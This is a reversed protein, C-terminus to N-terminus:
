STDEMPMVTQVLQGVSPSIPWGRASTCLLCKQNKFWIGNLVSRLQVGQWCGRLHEFDGSSTGALAEVLTHCPGFSSEVQLLPFLLCLGGFTCAQRPSLPSGAEPISDPCLGPGPAPSIETRLSGRSNVDFSSFTKFEAQSRGTILAATQLAPSALLLERAAGPGWRCQERVPIIDWPRGLSFHSKGGRRDRSSFKVPGKIRGLLSSSRNLVNCVGGPCM